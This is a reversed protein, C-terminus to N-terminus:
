VWGTEHWVLQVFYFTVRVGNVRCMDCTTALKPAPYLVLTPQRQIELMKLSYKQYQSFDIEQMERCMNCTVLKSLLLLPPQRVLGRRVQGEQNKDCDGYFVRPCITPPNSPILFLRVFSKAEKSKTCVSYAGAM